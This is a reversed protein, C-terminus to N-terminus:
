PANRRTEGSRRERQGRSQWTPFPQGYDRRHRLIPSQMTPLVREDGSAVLGITELRQVPHDSSAQMMTSSRMTGASHRGPLLPHDGHPWRFPTTRHLTQRAYYWGYDRHMKPSHSKSCVAGRLGSGGYCIWALTVRPHVEKARNHPTPLHSLPPQLPPIACASLINFTCTVYSWHM